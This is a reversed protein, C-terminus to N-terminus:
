VVTSASEPLHRNWGTASLLILVNVISLLAFTAYGIQVTIANLFLAAAANLMAIVESVRVRSPVPVVPVRVRACNPFAVAIFSVAVLQYIPPM